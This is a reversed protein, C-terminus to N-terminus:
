SQPPGLARQVACIFMIAHDNSPLGTQGAFKNRAPGPTM